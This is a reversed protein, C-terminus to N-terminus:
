TSSGICFLVSFSREFLHYFPFLQGWLVIYMLVCFIMIFGRVCNWKGREIICLKRQEIGGEGTALLLRDVELVAAVTNSFIM